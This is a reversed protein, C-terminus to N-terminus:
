DQIPQETLTTPQPVDAWSVSVAFQIGVDLGSNPHGRFYVPQAWQQMNDAMAGVLSWPVFYRVTGLRIRSGFPDLFYPTVDVYSDHPEGFYRDQATQQKPFTM